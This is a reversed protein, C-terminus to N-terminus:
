RSHTEQYGKLGIFLLILAFLGAVVSVRSTAQIGASLWVPAGILAGFLRGFSAIALFVSMTTARLSPILETSLGITAVINLEFTLFIFFLGFLAIFLSQDLFPLIACFIVNLALGISAVRGLGLRDGSFAILVEGLLEAFGIVGTGVGLTIVTLGFSHELWAGYVIFMNDASVGVFFVSGFICLAIKDGLLKKWSGLINKCESMVSTQCTENAPSPSRSNELLRHLVIWGLLGLGGLLFFPARWNFRDIFFAVIPIGVLTSGAWCVEIIGIIRGRRSYPVQWGIYAQLSPDFISKSLGSLFLSAFIVGYFPLLGGAFMGLVLLGLGILMMVRYGFRDALPGFFVGILATIQNIAILNTVATLPVGLGRSLVPAFPYPFRRATNILLRCFIAAISLGALRSGTKKVAPIGATKTPSSM